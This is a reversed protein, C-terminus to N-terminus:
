ASFRGWSIDLNTLFPKSEILKCLLETIVNDNLNMNSIKIRRIIKSKELIAQLIAQIILKLGGGTLNILCIEEFSPVMEVLKKCSLDGIHGM